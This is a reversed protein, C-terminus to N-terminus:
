ILYIDLDPGYYNIKSYKRTCPSQWERRCYSEKIDIKVIQLHPYIMIFIIFKDLHNLINYTLEIILNGRLGYM